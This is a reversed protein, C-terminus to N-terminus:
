PQPAAPVTGLRSELAALRALVAYHGELRRAEAVARSAELREVRELASGLASADQREREEQRVELGHLRALLEADLKAGSSEAQSQRLELNYLRDGISSFDAGAPLAPAPAPATAPVPVVEIRARLAAIESAIAEIRRALDAVSVLTAPDPPAAASREALESRLADIDADLAAVGPDPAAAPATERRDPRAPWLAFGLALLTAAVVSRGALGSLVHRRVFRRLYPEGAASRAGGASQSDRSPEM